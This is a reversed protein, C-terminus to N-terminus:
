RKRRPKRPRLIARLLPEDPGISSDFESQWAPAAARVAATIDARASDTGAGFLEDILMQRPMAGDRALAIVARGLAFWPLDMTILEHELRERLPGSLPEATRALVDFLWGTTWPYLFMDGLLLAEVEGVARAAHEGNGLLRLYFSIERTMQPYTDILESLRDLPAVSDTAALVPLTEAIVHNAISASEDPDEFLGEFLEELHDPELDGWDVEKLSEELADPDFAYSDSDTLQEVVAERLREELQTVGAVYAARDLVDTKEPSCSLGVAHLHRELDLLAYRGAAQDPVPILFEDRLRYPSWGRRVLGRMIRGLYLDALVDSGRPGQPLGYDRGLLEGLTERLADTLDVDATLELVEQTLTQHDVYEYFSAVDAVVVAMDTQHQDDMPQREFVRRATRPLPGLQLELGTLDNHPELLAVLRAALAAIIVRDALSVDLAPRTVGSARPVRVVESRSAKRGVELRARLHTLFPGTANRAAISESRSPFFEGTSPLAADLANGWPLEKILSAQFKM